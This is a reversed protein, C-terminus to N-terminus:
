VVIYNMLVKLKVNYCSTELNDRYFVINTFTLAMISCYNGLLGLSEFCQMVKHVREIYLLVSSKTHRDVTELM